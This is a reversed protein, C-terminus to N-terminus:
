GIFLNLLRNIDQWPKEAPASKAAIRIGAKEDADAHRFRESGSGFKHGRLAAAGRDKEIAVPHQIDVVAVDVRGLLDFPNM